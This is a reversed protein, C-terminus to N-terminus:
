CYRTQMLASVLSLTLIWTRNHRVGNASARPISMIWQHDDTADAVGEIRDQTIELWDSVAVEVVLGGLQASLATSADGHHWPRRTGASLPSIALQLERRYKNVGSCDAFGRHPTSMLGGRPPLRVTRCVRRRHRQRIAFGELVSPLENALATM